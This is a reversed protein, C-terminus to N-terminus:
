LSTSSCTACMTPSASIWVSSSDDHAVCKGLRVVVGVPGIAAVTRHDVKIVDVVDVVPVRVTLVLPV